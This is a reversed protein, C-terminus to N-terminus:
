LHGPLVYAKDLAKESGSVYCRRVFRSSISPSRAYHAIIRTLISLNLQPCAHVQQVLRSPLTPGHAETIRCICSQESPARAQLPFIVSGTSKWPRIIAVFLVGAADRHIGVLNM